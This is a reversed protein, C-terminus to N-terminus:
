PLALLHTLKYIKVFLQRAFQFYVFLYLLLTWNMSNHWIVFCWSILNRFLSNISVNFFLWVFSYTFDSFQLIYKLTRGFGPKPIPLRFWSWTETDTKPGSSKKGLGLSEEMKEGKINKTQFDCKTWLLWNTELWSGSKNTFFTM